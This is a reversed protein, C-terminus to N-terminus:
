RLKQVPLKQEVWDSFAGMNETNFGEQSLFEAVRGSRNGSRCYLIITKDKPLTSKFAAWDPHGETIKSTPMWLSGEAMGSMLLEEEERVDILIAKGAKLLELSKKPEM